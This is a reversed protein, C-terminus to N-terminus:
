SPKNKQRIKYLHKDISAELRLTMVKIWSLFKHLYIKKEFFVSVKKIKNHAVKIFKNDKLSVTGNKPLMVLQPIKRAIIYLVGGFSIVFIISVISTLM